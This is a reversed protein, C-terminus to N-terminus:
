KIWNFFVTVVIIRLYESLTGWMFKITKSREHFRMFPKSEKVMREGM